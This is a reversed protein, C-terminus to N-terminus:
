CIFSQRNSGLLGFHLGFGLYMISVPVLMVPQMCTHVGKLYTLCDVVSNPAVCLRSCVGLVGSALMSTMPQQPLVSQM